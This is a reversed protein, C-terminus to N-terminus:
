NREYYLHYLNLLVKKAKRTYERWKNAFIEIIGYLIMFVAAIILVKSNFGYLFYLGLIVEVIYVPLGYGIFKLLKKSQKLNIDFVIYAKLLLLLYFCLTILQGYNVFNTIKCIVAFIVTPLVATGALYALSKEKIVYRKNFLLGVALLPILLINEVITLFMDRNFDIAFIKPVVLSSIQLLVLYILLSKGIRLNRRLITIKKILELYKHLCDEKMYVDSLKKVLSSCKEGNSIGLQAASLSPLDTLNDGVVAVKYGDNIFMNIIRNKMEYSIRSYVKVKSLVNIMEEETLSDLEVGSIVEDISNILSIDTAVKAAAIKNEETIIMPAINNRKLTKIIEDSDQVVPNLFAMIGVFVMNSEINEDPTPQYGFSRYAFGITILGESSFNYDCNKINEIDEETIEKEVGEKMIHTCRSLVEDLAGRTNVRYNKEVKNLTTVMRRETDYPLEFIRRQQTMLMGKYIGRGAGLRLLAIETIDGKGSDDNVNYIANNTLLGINIMRQLNIDNNDGEDEGYVKEDTYMKKAIMKNVSIAGIKELFIIDIKEEIDLVSLNILEIGESALEKKYLYIFSIVIIVYGVTELSYLENLLLNIGSNRGAFFYEALAVVGAIILTYKFVTNIKEELKRGLTNKRIGASNLLAMNRGLQTKSGIAIVIGLGDGRVITSGKFLINKMESLSNVAGEIMTEYKECLFEEGTVNKENVKLEESEIVRIDAPVLMNKTLVVIDGVVLEESNINERIGNRIVRTTTYNLSNLLSLEKRSKVIEYYRIAVTLIALLVIIVGQVFFHFFIFLVTTALMILFWPRLLLKILIVKSTEEITIPMINLGNAERRKSVEDSSLGRNLDSQLKDIVKNWSINYWREM